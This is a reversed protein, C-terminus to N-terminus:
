VAKLRGLVMTRRVEEEGVPRDVGTKGWGGERGKWKREATTRTSELKFFMGPLASRFCVVDPASM